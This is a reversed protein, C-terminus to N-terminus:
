IMAKKKKIKKKINKNNKNNKLQPSPDPIPQPHTPSTNPFPQPHTPSTNPFPQPYTPSPNPIPQPSDETFAQYKTFNAVKIKIGKHSSEVEIDGTRKLNNLATRVEDRTLGTAKSLNDSSTFLEGQNIEIGRWRKNKTNAMLAIRIFLYATKYNDAWEWEDIKRYMKIWGREM